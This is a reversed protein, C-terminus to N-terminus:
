INKALLSPFQVDTFTDNCYHSTGNVSFTENLSSIVYFYARQLHKQCLIFDQHYRGAMGFTRWESPGGNRRRRKLHLNNVTSTLTHLRDKTRAELVDLISKSSGPIYSQWSFDVFSSRKPQIKALRHTRPM